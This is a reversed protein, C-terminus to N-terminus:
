NADPFVFLREYQDEVCNSIRLKLNITGKLYRIICKLEILDSQTPSNIKQSLISVSAAIDPRANIAVYLLQGIWKQYIKNNKTDDSKDYNIELNYPATKAEKLRSGNVIKKIYTSQNIFFDGDVM